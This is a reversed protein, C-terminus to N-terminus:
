EALTSGQRTNNSQTRLNENLKTLTTKTMHQNNLNNSSEKFVPPHPPLATSPPHLLSFKHLQQPNSAECKPLPYCLSPHWVSTKRKRKGELKSIVAVAHM